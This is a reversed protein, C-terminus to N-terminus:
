LFENRIINNNMIEVRLGYPNIGHACKIIASTVKEKQFANRAKINYL